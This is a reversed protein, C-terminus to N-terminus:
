SVSQRSLGQNSDNFHWSGEVKNILDSSGALASSFNVLVVWILKLFFCLLVCFSEEFFFSLITVITLTEFLFFVIILKLLLFFFVVELFTIRLAEDSIEGGRFQVVELSIGASRGLCSCIAETCYIQVCNSLDTALDKGFEPVSLELRQHSPSWIFHVIQKYKQYNAM